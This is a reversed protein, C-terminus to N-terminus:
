LYMNAKLTEATGMIQWRHLQCRHCMQRRHRQYRHSIAVSTTSVPAVPILLVLLVPPLIQRRHRQHAFIEAFKRFIEFRDWQAPPFQNMFFFLLLFDRSVTVKIRFSSIASIDIQRAIYKHLVLINILRLM